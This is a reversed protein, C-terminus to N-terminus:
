DFVKFDFSVILDPDTASATYVSGGIGLDYDINATYPDDIFFPPATDRTISVTM